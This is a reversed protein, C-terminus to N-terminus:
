SYGLLQRSIFFKKRRKTFRVLAQPWRAREEPLPFPSNGSGKFDKLLYLM